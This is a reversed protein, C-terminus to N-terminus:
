NLLWISFNLISAFSVWLIYPILLAASERKVRNFRAITLFIAGWLIIIEILALFPAHLAFFLVSWLINLGLQVFFVSLAAIRKKSKESWVFYLSIGMLIFLATWVPAFVWNPPSFFPKNLTSYWGKISPMTFISGIFGAGLCILISAILKLFNVLKIRDKKHM